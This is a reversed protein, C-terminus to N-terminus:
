ILPRSSSDAKRFILALREHLEEVARFLELL